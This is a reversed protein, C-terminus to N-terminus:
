AGMHLRFGGLLRTTPWSVELAPVVLMAQAQEAEDGDTKARRSADSTM